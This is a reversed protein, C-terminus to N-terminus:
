GFRSVLLDGARRVTARRRVAPQLHARPGADVLASRTSCPAAESRSREFEAGAADACSGSTQEAEEPSSSLFLSGLRATSRPQDRGRGPLPPPVGATPSGHRAGPYVPRRVACSGCRGSRAAAESWSRGTRQIPRPMNLAREIRYYQGEFSPRDETFMARCITLAEDLRDMREKLPPFDVGYGRHEDENWAAGMGLVARGGSVVDLTTVTKALIAGLSSGIGLGILFVALILSFTYTSAGFLLSLLRTWIVQAAL